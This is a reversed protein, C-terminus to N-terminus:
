IPTLTNIEDVEDITVNIEDVKAVVEVDSECTTVTKTHSIIIKEETVANYM